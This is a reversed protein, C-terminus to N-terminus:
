EVGEFRFPGQRLDCGARAGRRNWRTVCSGTGGGGPAGLRIRRIGGARADGLYAVRDTGNLPDRAWRACHALRVRARRM